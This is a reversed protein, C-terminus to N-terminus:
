RFYKIDETEISSEHLKPSSSASSADEKNEEESEEGPYRYKKSYCNNLSKFIRKKLPNKVFGEEMDENNVKQSSELKMKIENIYTEKEEQTFIGDVGVTNIISVLDKPRRQNVGELINMLDYIITSHIKSDHHYDKHHTIFDRIWVADTVLEGSARKSIFTIYRNLQNLIDSEIESKSLYSCILSLIGPFTGKEDTFGNMIQDITMLEYTDDEEEGEKCPLVHRRFWFKKTRAADRVQATQMNEDIKSIPIYFNLNLSRITRTLLLLFVSFAANAFDTLQVEMSRFEIRWGIDSNPPPLKFRLTQWNTSQINEFHDTSNLDDQILLENYIVLPDRIFLHAIHRALLEDIGHNVLKQYIDKDYVLDLDNYKEKYYCRNHCSKPDTNSTYDPGVSLYSDISDYRSKNIKLFPEGNEKTEGQKAERLGREVPNRDDVSGSIVNWRCDTDVLYGKYAPAGATLALLIPTVPALADYIFRAEQIDSAQFTVQLCSCGMGFCMCDLYVHDEKAPEIVEPLTYNIKQSPTKIVEPISENLSHCYISETDSSESASSIVPSYLTSEENNDNTNNRNNATRNMQEAIHEVISTISEPIPERFPKPTLHDRYVPLNIAVKSGRRQRINATLTPFRAHDTIAQDPIFLSQSCSPKMCSNLDEELTFQNTENTTDDIIKFLEPSLSILKQDPNPRYYNPYLFDPAGLAPFATISVVVDNTGLKERILQRRLNMNQEVKLLDELKSGYPLGPTGEIMYKAYEPKWSAEYNQKLQEDEQLNKLVDAANLSLRAVRNDNDMNVVSYEIEDGWLLGESDKKTKSVQDWVNLFQEIGHEHVYDSKKKADEWPMPTGLSLLGM